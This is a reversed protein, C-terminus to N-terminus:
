QFVIYEIGLLGKIVKATALREWLRCLVLDPWIRTTKVEPIEDKRHM